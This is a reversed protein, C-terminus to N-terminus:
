LEKLIFEINYINGNNHSIKNEKNNKYKLNKNNNNYLYNLSNNNNNYHFENSNNNNYSNFLNSNNHKFHLKNDYSFILKNKETNKNNNINNNNIIDKGNLEFIKQSINVNNNNIYNNENLKYIHKEYNKKMNEDYSLGRRKEWSSKIRNKLLMGNRLNGKMIKDKYERETYLIENYNRTFLSNDEINIKNQFNQFNFGNNNNNYNPTNLYYEYINNNNYNYSNNNKLYKYINRYNNFKFNKNKNNDNHLNNYKKNFNNKNFIKKLSNFDNNNIFKNIYENNKKEVTELDDNNM